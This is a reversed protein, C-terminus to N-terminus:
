NCKQGLSEQLAALICTGEKTGAGHPPIAAHQCLQSCLMRLFGWPSLLRHQEERQGHQIRDCVQSLEAEQLFVRGQREEMPGASVQLM